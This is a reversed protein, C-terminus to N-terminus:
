PADQRQMGAVITVREFVHDSDLRRAGIRLNDLGQRALLELVRLEGATTSRVEFAVHAADMDLSLLQVGDPLHGLVHLVAQAQGANELLVEVIQKRSLVHSKTKNLDKLDAIRADVKGIQAQLAHAAEQRVVSDHRLLAVVPACLLLPIGIALVCAVTFRRGSLRPQTIAGSYESGM